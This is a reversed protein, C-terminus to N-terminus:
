FLTNRRKTAFFPQTARKIKRPTRAGVRQIERLEGPSSIRTRKRQIFVGPKGSKPPRFIRSFSPSPKEGTRRLPKRSPKLKFTAAATSRVIKEGLAAAEEPVYSFPSVPNFKGKRRVQVELGTLPAKRKAKAKKAPTTEEESVFTVPATTINILPYGIRQAVAQAQTQTRKQQQVQQQEEQQAQPQGLSLASSSANAIRNVESEVPTQPQRQIQRGLLTQEVALRQTSRVGQSPLTTVRSRNLLAGPLAASVGPLTLTSLSPVSALGFAAATSSVAGLAPTQPTQAILNSLVENPLLRATSGVQGGGGVMSPLNGIRTAESPGASSGFVAADLAQATQQNQVNQLTASPRLPLVRRGRIGTVTGTVAPETGSIILGKEVLRIDNTGVNPAVASRTIKAKVPTIVRAGTSPTTTPRIFVEFQDAYRAGRPYLKITEINPKGRPLSLIARTGVRQNVLQAFVQEQEKTSMGKFIQSPSTAETTGKEILSVENAKTKIKATRPQRRYISVLKVPVERNTPSTVKSAQKIQEKTQFFYTKGKRGVEPVTQVVTRGLLNTIAKETGERTSQELLTTISRGTVKGNVLRGGIILREGELTGGTPGKVKGTEIFIFKEKKGTIPNKRVAEYIRQVSSKEINFQKLARGYVQKRANPTVVKTITVDSAQVARRALAARAAAGGLLAGSTVAGLEALVNGTTRAKGLFTPQAVVRLTEGGLFVPIAIKSATGITSAASTGALAGAGFGLGASLAATGFLELPKERLSESIGSAVQTAILKAKLPALKQNVQKETFGQRFLDAAQQRFIAEAVLPDQGEPIVKKALTSAKYRLPKSEAKFQEQIAPLKAGIRKEAASLEDRQFQAFEKQAEDIRKQLTAEQKAKAADADAQTSFTSENLAKQAAARNKELRSEIDNLKGTLAADVRVQEKLSAQTLALAAKDAPSPQINAFNRPSPKLTPTIDKAASVLETATSKGFDVIKQAGRTLKGPELLGGARSQAVDFREIGMAVAPAPKEASRVITASAPFPATSSVTGRRTEPLQRIRNVEQTTQPALTISSGGGGFSGGSNTSAVTSQANKPALSSTRSPSLQGRKDQARNYVGVPIEEGTPLTIFYQDELDSLNKPFSRTSRNRLVVQGTKKNVAKTQGRVYPVGAYSFPTPITAGAFRKQNVPLQADFNLAPVSSYTKNTDSSFYVSPPPNTGGFDRVQLGPIVPPPLKTLTIATNKAM